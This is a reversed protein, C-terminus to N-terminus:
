AATERLRQPIAIEISLVDRLTLNRGFGKEESPNKNVTRFM